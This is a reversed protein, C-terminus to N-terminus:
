DAIRFGCDGSTRLRNQIGLDMLYEHSTCGRGHELLYGVDAPEDIDLEIRPLRLERFVAGCRLAEARHLNFSGPGFHSPFL